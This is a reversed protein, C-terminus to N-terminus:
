RMFFGVWSCAWRLVWLMYKLLGNSRKKKANQICFARPVVSSKNVGAMATVTQRM